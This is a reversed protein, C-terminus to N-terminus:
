AAQKTRSFADLARQRASAHDVIPKPYTEDLRIGAAALTDEPADWPKHILANPLRAIEPVFRRVYVGDPDFKAGQIIPNFVRFYPAADAGTGAVWQWSAANNAPDADVLTDWFWAEGLRWHLLLHKTLFSAVIMRVRNHMWGTQWLERMGADVIPYGTQGRRWREFQADDQRWGFGDFREQFNEDPLSPFHYLLHYAFERWGVESLFKEADRDSVADSERRAQVAHWIMRPSIEGFALHPSLRSTSAIDPRDRGKAYGALPGDLFRDFCALAGAEGPLWIDDWGVAWDPRGAYLGLDDLAASEPWADPLPWSRPAPRPQAIPDLACHARWFPSFVRYAGGERGTVTWPERLLHSNHSSVVLGRAKLREKLDTDQAIDGPAYRRNWFVATAGTEAILTELAAMPAGRRLIFRAGQAELAEGLRALSQRLWWSAAGGLPRTEANESDHIYAPVIRYGGDMAATLAPNDTLRLDRRFLVIATPAGPRAEPLDHERSLPAAANSM